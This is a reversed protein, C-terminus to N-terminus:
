FVPSLPELGLLVRGADDIVHPSVMLHQGIVHVDRFCRALPHDADSMATGSAEFLITVARACSEVAASCALRVLAQQRVTPREGRVVTEWLDGVVDTVFGRAGGLAVEADAVARQARPREALPARSFRPRREEALAVFHDVAARAIGTAVGVKNYALRSTFPVRALPGAARPRAARTRTVHEAPVFRGRVVVDHSGSGRLGPANWTEDVEYAHRPLLVEVVDREGAGAEGGSAVVCQAWFWDARQAGSAFPWRGDVVVGGEVPAARGLPNLAGCVVAGPPEGLLHRATPVPLHLGVIGTTEAGIMLVWGTAGDAESVAEIAAISTLPDCAPGGLDDPVGLAFLGASALAAVVDPDPSATREAAAARERVLPALARAAAVLPHTTGM